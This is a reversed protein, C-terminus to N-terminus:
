DSSAVVFGTSRCDADARGAVAIRLDEKGTAAKAWTSAPHGTIAEVYRRTEGPLRRTKRLWDSVRGPGANYAAAALGLNGFRQKLSSLLGAAARLAQKPDFPDPLNREAATAPMFQAIGQAGAHSVAAVRFRSEQWILRAFFRAPLGHERASTEIMRCIKERPPQRRAEPPKALPIPVWAPLGTTSRKVVRAPQGGRPNLSVTTSAASAAKSGRLEAGHAAALSLTAAVAITVTM